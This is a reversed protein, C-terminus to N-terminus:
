HKGLEARLREYMIKERPSLIKGAWIKRNLKKYLKKKAKGYHQKCYYFTGDDSYLTAYNTGIGCTGCPEGVVTIDFVDVAFMDCNKCFGAGNHYGRTEYEHEVCNLSKQYSTWAEFEAEEITEGEGRFFGGSDPFAEVFCTEYSQTTGRVFVLGKYGAQLEVNQGWNQTPKLYGGVGEPRSFPSIKIDGM